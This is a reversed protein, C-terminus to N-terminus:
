SGGPGNKDILTVVASNQVRERNNDSLVGVNFNLSSDSKSKTEIDAHHRRRESLGPLNMRGLAPM